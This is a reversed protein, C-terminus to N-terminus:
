LRERGVSKIIGGAEKKAKELAGYLFGRKIEQYITYEAAAHVAAQHEGVPPQSVMSRDAVAQAAAQAQGRGSEDPAITYIANRMFGTDVPANVKAEGEIYLALATLIEDSAGEVALLVDNAYWDIKSKRAM